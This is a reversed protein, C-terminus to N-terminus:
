HRSPDKSDLWLDFADTVAEAFDFYQNLTREADLESVGRKGERYDLITLFAMPNSNAFKAVREIAERKTAAHPEGMAILAHRFLAAFASFSSTMLGLHVKDNKPAGLIAQRLRLWDTRLEREVQIAHYRLPVNVDAFPDATHSDPAHADRSFLIRHHSKMDLLEIAFVDASRKLEELTFVLPPRQGQKTWWQVAGHLAELQKTDANEVLCLLNLDSHGSHFEETAASGYLIVSKLNAPAAAKLKEVFEDLKPHKM